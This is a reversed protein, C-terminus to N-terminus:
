VRTVQQTNEILKGDHRITSVANANLRIEGSASDSGAEKAKQEAEKKKKPDPGFIKKLSEIPHSFLDSAKDLRDGRLVGLIAGAVIGVASGVAVLPLMYKYNVLVKEKEWNSPLLVNFVTIAEWFGGRKYGRFTDMLLGVKGTPLGGLKWGVLAFAGALLLRNGTKDKNPDPKPINPDHKIIEALSQEIRDLRAPIDDAAPKPPDAPTNTSRVSSEM